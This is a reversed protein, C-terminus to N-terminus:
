STVPGTFTPAGFLPGSSEVSSGSLFGAEIRATNSARQRITQSLYYKYSTEVSAHDAAAALQHPQLHEALASLAGKRFSIGSWNNVKFEDKSLGFLEAASTLSARMRKLWPANLPPFGGCTRAFVYQKAVGSFTRLYWLRLLQVPCIKAINCRGVATFTPDKKAISRVKGSELCFMVRECKDFSPLFQVHEWRLLHKCDDKTKGMPIVHGRRIATFFLASYTVADQLDDLVDINIDMFLAMFLDHTISLKAKTGQFVELFKPAERKFRDYIWPEIKRPDPCGMAQCWEAAASVYNRISDM